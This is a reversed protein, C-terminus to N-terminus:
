TQRKLSESRRGKKKKEDKRTTAEAEERKMSALEPAITAAVKKVFKALNDSNVVLNKFAEATEEICQEFRCRKVTKDCITENIKMLQDTLKKLDEELKSKEAM